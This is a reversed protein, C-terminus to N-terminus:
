EEKTECKATAGKELNHKKEARKLPTNAMTSPVPSIRTEFDSFKTIHSTRENVSVLESTESTEDVEGVKTVKSENGSLQAAAEGQVLTSPEATPSTM